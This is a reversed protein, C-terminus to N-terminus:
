HGDKKETWESTSHIGCDGHMVPKLVFATQCIQLLSISYIHKQIYVIVLPPELPLATLVSLQRMEHEKLIDMWFYIFVYIQCAKQNCFSTVHLRTCMDSGYYGVERNM